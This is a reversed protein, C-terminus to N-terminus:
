TAASTPVASTLVASVAHVMTAHAAEISLSHSVRLREMATFGTLVDIAVAVELRTQPSMLELEPRFTTQIQDFMTSMNADLRERIMENSPARVLAARVMPALVEHAHLRSTALRDIREDLTGSGISEIRLLPQTRQINRLIAQRMLEDTDEFYRYVSRLSIGSREAVEPASPEVHGEAFLELVADLVTDRNRVRRASRGDVDNTALDNM